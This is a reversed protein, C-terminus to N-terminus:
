AGTECFSYSLKASEDTSSNPPGFTLGSEFSQTRQLAEAVDGRDVM